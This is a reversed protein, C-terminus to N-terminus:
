KAAEAQSLKTFLIKPEGLPAGSPLRAPPQWAKWGDPLSLMAAMREAASPMFPACLTALYQVAHICTAIAAGCDPVNDKRTKWPERLGFYQNCARSFAMVEEIAARFRHGEIHEGVARLAEDGRALVARDADIAPSTDPVRNEFYKQAFTLCRNVFNGLAAVLEGDNRNVFEEFDFATRATEPALATLYYRLADADYKKLYEEIWVPADPPTTSKSIKELEGGKRLNLFNNAVVYSPLQHQQAEAMLMAPWILAHFVTNDEGIFHLIPTNPDCWWQRYAERDGFRQECLAATFTIYGIPADFWVFVVKGAADPDDLPVPIGWQIDRTMAREPLGQKIQGLAFNLVNSRWVGQKSELWAALPKEFDNLRLYWHTTERVEAKEGTIESRPEILLLPDIMRGCQDCQDGTAGPKKCDPHYCTGRVYRDPLFRQAKPDYLQKLRRKTFFGREHIRKFFDQSFQEHLKRYAPQHTGGYIDFDIRLGLFDQKQREHYHTCIEQPSRGEKMASIEIAVGNDDSGCIYLVDHGCARLYRVFIDAPLYAGAIHGVHLRNNSYPLGATVLYRQAM